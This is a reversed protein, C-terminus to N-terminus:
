GASLLDLQVPRNAREAQPRTPLTAKLLAIRRPGFGCVGQLKGSRAASGLADVSDIGLDHIERALKPGIGPVTRLHAEPDHRRELRELLPLEGSRVWDTILGSIWWGIGLAHLADVGDEDVRENVAEDLAGITHAARRYAAIVDPAVDDHELLTAIRELAAVITDNDPPNM